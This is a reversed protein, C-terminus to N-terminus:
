YFTIWLNMRSGVVIQYSAIRGSAFVRFLDIALGIKQTLRCGHLVGAGFGCGFANGLNAFNQREPEHTKLCPLGTFKRGLGSFTRQVTDALLATM